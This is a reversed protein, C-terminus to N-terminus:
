FAPARRRLRGGSYFDEYGAGGGACRGLSKPLPQDNGIHLAARYAADRAAYRAARAASEAETDIVPLTGRQHHAIGLTSM